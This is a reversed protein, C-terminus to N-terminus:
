IFLPQGIRKAVNFVLFIIILRTEELKFFVLIDRVCHYGGGHLFETTLELSEHSSQLLHM